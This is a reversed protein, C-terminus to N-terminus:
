DAESTVASPPKTRPEDCPLHLLGRAGGDPPSCIITGAPIFTAAKLGFGAVPSEYKLVDPHLM